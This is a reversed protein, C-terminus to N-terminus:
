FSSCTGHAVMQLQNTCSIGDHERMIKEQNVKAIRNLFVKAKNYKDWFMLYTVSTKITKDLQTKLHMSLLTCGAQLWCTGTQKQDSVKCEQMSAPVLSYQINSNTSALKMTTSSLAAQQLQKFKNDM